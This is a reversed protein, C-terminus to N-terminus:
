NTSFVQQYEWIDLNSRPVYHQHYLIYNLRIVIFNVRLDVLLVSAHFHYGFVIRAEQECHHFKIDIVKTIRISQVDATGIHDHDCVNHNTDRTYSSYKYCKKHSPRTHLICNCHIQRRDQIWCKISTYLKRNKRLTVEHIERWTFQNDAYNQTAEFAIM